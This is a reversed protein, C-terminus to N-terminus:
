HAVVHTPPLRGLDQARNPAAYESVLASARKGPGLSAEWSQQASGSDWMPTNVYARMSPTALWDDLHSLGLYLFRLGHGGGDRADM